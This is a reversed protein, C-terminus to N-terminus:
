AGKTPARPAALLSRGAAMDDLVEAVTRLMRALMRLIYPDVKCTKPKDKTQGKM